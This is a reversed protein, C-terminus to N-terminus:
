HGMMRIEDRLIAALEYNEAALAAQLREHLEAKQSAPLKPVLAERMGRLLLVENAQDYADAAGADDFVDRIEVLGRDIVTVAERPRGGAVAHEAEARTRMMIVYPRFQELVARDQESEGFDRCLDFVKLNRLTDRVVAIYEGLVFLAVYRHYYQVAEERLARCEDSSLVFGESGGTQEEYHHLRDLQHELLSEFGQPREGDPRGDIELQLLGLSVRIQIKPRGDRGDIKRVNIQGGEFPWDTLIHSLDLDSVPREDASRPTQALTETQLTNGTPGFLAETPTPELPNHIADLYRPPWQARVLRRNDAGRPAPLM